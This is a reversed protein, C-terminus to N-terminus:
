PLEWEDPTWAAYTKGTESIRVELLRPAVAPLLVSVQDFLFRALGESTTQAPREGEPLANLDRHDWHEDLWHKVVDLARFDVVFGTPDLTDSVFILSAVYNHGHPRSCPHEPPLHPLHHGCSFEFRKSIRYM